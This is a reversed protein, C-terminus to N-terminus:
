LISEISVLLNRWRTKRCWRGSSEYYSRPGQEHWRRSRQCSCGPPFVFCHFSHLRRPCCLATFRTFSPTLLSFLLLSSILSSLFLISYYKCFSKLCACLHKNSRKECRRKICMLLIYRMIGAEYGELADCATSSPQQGIETMGWEGDKVLLTSISILVDDISRGQPRQISVNGIRAYNVLMTPFEKLVSFYM